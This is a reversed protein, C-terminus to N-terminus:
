GIMIGSSYGPNLGSSVCVAPAASRALGPHLTRCAADVERIRRRNRARRADSRPRCGGVRARRLSSPHHEAGGGRASVDRSDAGSRGDSFTQDRDLDREDRPAVDRGGPLPAPGVLVVASVDPTPSASRRPQDTPDHGRRRRARHDPARRHRDGPGTRAPPQCRFLGCSSCGPLASCVRARFLVADSPWSSANASSLVHCRQLSVITM